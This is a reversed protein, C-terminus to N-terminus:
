KVSTKVIELDPGPFYKFKYLKLGGIDQAQGFNNLKELLEELSSGQFIYRQNGYIPQSTDYAIFINNEHDVIGPMAHAHGGFSEFRGSATGKLVEHTTRVFCDAPESSTFAVAREIFENPIDGVMTITVPGRKKIEFDPTILHENM